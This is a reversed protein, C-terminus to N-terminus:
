FADWEKRPSQMERAWTGVNKWVIAPAVAASLAAAHAAGVVVQVPVEDMLTILHAKYREPLKGSALAAALAARPIEEMYSVSCLQAALALMDGHNKRPEWQLRISLVQLIQGLRGLSLNALHGRELGNITARSVRSLQALATQTLGLEQRRNAVTPAIWLLDNM